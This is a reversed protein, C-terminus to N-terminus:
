LETNRQYVTQWYKVFNQFPLSNPIKVTRTVTILIAFVGSLLHPANTKDTSSQVYQLQVPM